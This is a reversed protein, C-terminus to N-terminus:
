LRWGRDRALSRRLPRPRARGDPGDRSRLGRDDCAPAGAPGLCPQRLGHQSVLFTPEFADALARLSTEVAPWWADDGSGAELPVNVATGPALEGGTEDVAGTGPFLTRGSEHISFTLVRPEDWFLAQTGDGHHVDLDVYLVRHGADVAAAVGLAVDNYVCFGSARGAMAHHLGGGPNFAHDTEGDLIASVAAISGGAIRASAEHMGFFAPVDGTGVGDALPREPSASTTRVDAIYRADHLRALQDDSAIPPELLRDVGIARVLGIGPGFRRPTLPHGPGFDYDTVAESWVLIPPMAVDGGM